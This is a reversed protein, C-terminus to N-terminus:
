SEGCPGVVFISFWYVQSSINCSFCGIYMYVIVPCSIPICLSLVVVGRSGLLVYMM